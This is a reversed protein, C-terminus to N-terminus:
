SPNLVVNDLYSNGYYESIHDLLKQGDAKYGGDVVHIFEEDLDDLYRLSIADGNGKEGAELFDIEYFKM